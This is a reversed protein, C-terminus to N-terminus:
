RAQIVAVEHLFGCKLCILVITPIADKKPDIKKHRPMPPSFSEEGCAICKKPLQHTTKMTTIKQNKFKQSVTSNTDGGMMM